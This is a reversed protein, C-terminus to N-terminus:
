QKSKRIKKEKVFVSDSYGMQGLVVACSVCSGSRVARPGQPLVRMALVNHARLVEPEALLKGEHPRASTGM